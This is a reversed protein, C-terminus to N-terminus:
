VDFVLTTDFVLLLFLNSIHAAQLSRIRSCHAHSRAGSERSASGEGADVGCSVTNCVQAVEDASPCDTCVVRDHVGFKAAELVEDVAQLFHKLCLLFLKPLHLGKASLLDLLPVEKLLNQPLADIIHLVLDLLLPRLAFHLVVLPLLTLGLMSNSSHVMIVLIQGLSLSLLDEFDEETM